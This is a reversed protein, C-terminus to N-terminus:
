VLTGYPENRAVAIVQRFIQLAQELARRADSETLWAQLSGTYVPPSDRPRNVMAELLEQSRESIHAAADGQDKIRRFADLLQGSLVGRRVLTREIEPFVPKLLRGKSNRPPELKWTAPGARKYSLFTWCFSELAARCAMASAERAGADHALLAQAYLPWWDVVPFPFDGKPFENSLWGMLDDWLPEARWEPLRPTIPVLCALGKHSLAHVLLGAGGGRLPARQNRDDMPRAGGVDLDRRGAAATGESREAVIIPARDGEPRAGARPSRRARKAGIVAILM